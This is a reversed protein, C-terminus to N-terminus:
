LNVQQEAWAQAAEADNGAEAIMQTGRSNRALIWAEPATGYEIKTFTTFVHHSRTLERLM